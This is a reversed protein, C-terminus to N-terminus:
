DPLVTFDVDIVVPASVEVPTEEDSSKGKRHNPAEKVEKPRPIRIVVEKTHILRPNAEHAEPMEGLLEATISYQGYANVYVKIEIGLADRGRGVEGGPMVELCKGSRGTAGAKRGGPERLLGENLLENVRANVANPHISCAYRIQERTAGPHQKVYQWIMNHVSGVKLMPHNGKHDRPAQQAERLPRRIPM